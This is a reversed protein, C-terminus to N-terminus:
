NTLNSIKTINEKINNQMVISESEFHEKLKEVEDNYQQEVKKLEKAQINGMEEKIEKLFQENKLRRRKEANKKFSELEDKGKQELAKSSEYNENLKGNLDNIQNQYDVISKNNQEITMQLRENETKFKDIDEEKLRAKIKLEAIENQQRKM